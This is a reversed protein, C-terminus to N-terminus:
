VTCAATVWSTIAMMIVYRLVYALCESVGTWSLAFPRTEVIQMGTMWTLNLSLSSSSM